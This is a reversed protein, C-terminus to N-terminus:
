LGNKHEIMRIFGIVAQEIILDHNGIFFARAFPASMRMWLKTPFVNWTFHITTNRDSSLFHCIGEGCLDGAVNFSLFSYPAVDKIITDFSVSYPLAGRWVSRIHNGKKLQDIEGLTEIKELGACWVPWRKYNMLENWSEELPAAIRWCNNFRYLNKREIYDTVFSIM